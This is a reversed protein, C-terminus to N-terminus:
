NVISGKVEPVVYPGEPIVIVKAASGHRAYAQSLGQELSTIKRGQALAADEHTLGESYILFRAKDLVKILEQVEWQDPVFNNVHAKNFDQNKEAKALERLLGKFRESGLGEPCRSAIIITGGQLIAPLAGILGKVTQYFNIDLPAGANTTVVIEAPEIIPMKFYRAVFECGTEHAAFIDGAFVGSLRRQEDLVVNLIFDCGAVKAVEVAEEHFPNGDLVCNTARPHELCEIGHSYRFTDLGMIGPCISKRGGSYGAMFHPEILGTLIKLDAQAYIRNVEIRAGKLTFGIQDLTSPMEARHNVVKYKQILDEGLLELLERSECPRHMGTAILITIDSRRIGHSEM